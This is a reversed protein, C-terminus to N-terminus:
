FFLLNVLFFVGWRSVVGLFVVYVNKNVLVFERRVGKVIFFNSCIRGM